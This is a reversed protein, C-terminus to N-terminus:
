KKAKVSSDEKMDVLPCGNKIVNFTQGSQSVTTKTETLYLESSCRVNKIDDIMNLAKSEPGFTWWEKTVNAYFVDLSVGIRNASMINLQREMNALLTLLGQMQNVSGKTQAAMRHQMMVNHPTGLRVPCAQMIQHAMSIATKAVCTINKNTTNFYEILKVGALVSGGPSDIYIYVNKAKAKEINVILADINPDDVDGILTVFNDKTLEVSGYKPTTPNPNSDAIALGACLATLTLTIILLLRM